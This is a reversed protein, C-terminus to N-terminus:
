FSLQAADSRGSVSMLSCTMREIVAVIDTV